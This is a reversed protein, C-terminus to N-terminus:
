KSQNNDNDAEKIEYNNDDYNDCREGEEPRSFEDWRECPYGWLCRKCKEETVKITAM